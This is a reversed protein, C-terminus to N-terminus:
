GCGRGLWVLFYRDVLISASRISDFRIMFEICYWGHRAKGLGEVVEWRVDGCRAVWAL